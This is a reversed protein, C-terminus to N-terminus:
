VFLQSPQIDTGNVIRSRYSVSAASGAPWVRDFHRLWPSLPFAVPTLSCRWGNLQTVAPEPWSPAQRAVRVVLGASDGQLNGMGASGNNAILRARGSVSTPWLYPLCTHTCIILDAGTQQLWDRRESDPSQQLAERSLKWGALSEPDGHLVLVKLGGFVLSRWRPLGALQQRIRPFGAAVTQLKQIIRNSREVTAEEVWDPYACGCGAGDSPSALEYEVNGAMADHRLVRQNIGNFSRRDVNFWNFDGNFLLHVRAGAAREQAAMQEIHQLALPNGYLGGIVYLVDAELRQPAVMLEQLPYRYALPCSRGLSEAVTM